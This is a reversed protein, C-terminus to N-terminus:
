FGFATVLNSMTSMNKDKSEIDGTMGEQLGSMMDFIGFLVFLGFIFTFILLIQNTTIDTM